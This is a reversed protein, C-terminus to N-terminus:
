SAVEYSAGHHFATADCLFFTSGRVGGAIDVGGVEDDLPLLVDDGGRLGGNVVELADFCGRFFQDQDGVGAV